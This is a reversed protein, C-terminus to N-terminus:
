WKIIVYAQDILYWLVMVLLLAVSLVPILKVTTTNYNRKKM